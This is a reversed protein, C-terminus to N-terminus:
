ALALILTHGRSSFAPGVALSASDRMHQLNQCTPHRAAHMDQQCVKAVTRTEFCERTEGAKLFYLSPYAEVGFRQQLVLESTSDIQAPVACPHATLAAVETWKCFGLTGQYAHVWSANVVVAHRIVTLIVAMSSAKGVHVEGKLRQAM